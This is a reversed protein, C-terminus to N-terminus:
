RARVVLYTTLIGIIVAAIVVTVITPLNTPIKAVATISDGSANWAAGTPAREIGSSNYCQNSTTNFTTFGDSRVACDDVGVTQKVDGMVKLGYAIAIGLVIFTMGIPLLDGIAFKSIKQM